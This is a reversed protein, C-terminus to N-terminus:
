QDRVTVSRTINIGHITLVHKHIDTGHATAAAAMFSVMMTLHHCETIAGPIQFHDAKKKCIWFKTNM